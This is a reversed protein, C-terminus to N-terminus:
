PTPGVYKEYAKIWDTRIAEQAMPLTISGACVMAHLKNELRDKVHANWPQTQYSQPWLNAIDNSGGLELSILHDIEYAGTPHEAIGYEKYVALKESQPVNRVTSTSRSCVVSESTTMVAGPTLTADPLLPATVALLVVFILQM